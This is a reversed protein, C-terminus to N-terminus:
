KCYSDWLGGVLILLLNRRGMNMHVHSPSPSLFGLGLGLLYHPRRMPRCKRFPSYVEEEIFM